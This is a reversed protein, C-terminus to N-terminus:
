RPRRRLDTQLAVLIETVMEPNKQARIVAGSVRDIDAQHQQERRARYSKLARGAAPLCVLSVVAVAASMTRVLCELRYAPWVFMLANVGFTMACMMSASGLMLWLNGVPLMSRHHYLWAAISFYALAMALSGSMHWAM